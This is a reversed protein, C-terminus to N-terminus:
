MTRGHYAIFFFVLLPTALFAALVGACTWILVTKWLPKNGQRHQRIIIALTAISIISYVIFSAIYNVTHNVSPEAFSSSSYGLFVLFLCRRSFSNLENM